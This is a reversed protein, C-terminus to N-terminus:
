RKNSIRVSPHFAQSYVRSYMAYNLSPIKAITMIIMSITIWGSSFLMQVMRINARQHATAGKSAAFVEDVQKAGGSKDASKSKSM